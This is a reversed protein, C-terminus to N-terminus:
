IGFKKAVDDDIKILKKKFRELKYSKTAELYAIAEEHYTILARKEQPYINISDQPTCRRDLCGGFKNITTKKFTMEPCPFCNDVNGMMICKPCTYCNIEHIDNKYQELTAKYVELIISKKM